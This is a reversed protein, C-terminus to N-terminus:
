CPPNQYIVVTNYTFKQSGKMIKLLLINIMVIFVIAHIMYANEYLALLSLMTKDTRGCAKDKFISFSNLNFKTIRIQM